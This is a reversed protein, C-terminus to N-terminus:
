FKLAVANELLKEVPMEAILCVWRGQKHTTVMSLGEYEHLYYSVGDRRVERGDPRLDDGDAVMLTLPQDAGRIVVCAVRKDKIHHMCCVMAHTDPLTPLGDVGHAQLKQAAENISAVQIMGPVQGGILERHLRALETPSATATRGSLAISLTIGAGLVLLVAAVLRMPRQLWLRVASPPRLEKALRRQLGAVEVPLTGLRALRDATAADLENRPEITM